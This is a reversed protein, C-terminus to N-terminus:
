TRCGDTGSLEVMKPRDDVHPSRRTALWMLISVIIANLCVSERGRNPGAILLHPLKRSSRSPDAIGSFTRPRSVPINMKHVAHIPHEICTVFVYSKAIENPVESVSPTEQRSRHSSASAPPGAFASPSTTALPQNKNV